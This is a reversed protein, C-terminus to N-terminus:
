GRNTGKFTQGRGEVTAIQVRNVTTQDLDANQCAKSSQRSRKTAGGLGTSEM